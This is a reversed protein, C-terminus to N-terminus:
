WICSGSIIRGRRRTCVWKTPSTQHISSLATLDFCIPLNKIMKSLKGFESLNQLTTKQLIEHQIVVSCKDDNEWLTQVKGGVLRLSEKTNIRRKYFVNARKVYITLGEKHGQLKLVVLGSALSV